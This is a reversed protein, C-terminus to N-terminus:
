FSSNPHTAVTYHLVRQSSSSSSSSSSSRSSSSSSSSSSRPTLSLLLCLKVRLLCVQLLELEERSLRDLRSAILGALGEMGASVYLAADALEGLGCVGDNDFTLVGSEKMAVITQVASFM